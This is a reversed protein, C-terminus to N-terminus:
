RAFCYFLGNGGTGRLNEQSCGKSPHASNWSNPNQGGGTRDHHGLQASGDSSSTWNKCTHDAADTFATGNLQSGTLIDHTNPKDTRGNIMTGKESLSGEKGLKNNESHLDAINAAVQEGKYNFFPGKGIRDRANVPKVGEGSVSLYARWQKKSAGAAKALATCHADAGTLGGLDAGNGSGVSTIFFNMKKSPGDGTAPIALTLALAILPAKTTM